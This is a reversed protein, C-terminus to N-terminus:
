NLSEYIKNYKKVASNIDFYKQSRSRVVKRNLKLLSNIRLYNKNNNINNVDLLCGIKEKKIIKEYDGIKKNIIIPVGMSLSESAKTPTSAIKAFTPKILCFSIDAISLYNPIKNWKSNIIKIEKHERYVKKFLSKQNTVVLFNINKLKSKFYKFIKLMEEIMYYKGYSGIYIMTKGNQNLGLKKKFNKKKIFNLYNFKEYDVSCPIVFIQNKRNFNKIIHEKAKDSLVVIVSSNRIIYNEIKKLFIFAIRGMVTNKKLAGNDVKEDIWFGRMDYIIKSKKFKAIISGFVAPLFGRCHIINIKYGITLKIIFFFFNIYNLLKKFKNQSYSFTTNHCKIKKNVFYNKKLIKKEMTFVKVSNSLKIKELYPIIQSQGLPDNLGDFSIYLSILRNM